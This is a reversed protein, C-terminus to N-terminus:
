EHYDAWAAQVADVLAQPEQQGAIVLQLQSTLVDLLAPASQDPFIMAGNDAAISAYADAIDANVGTFGENATPNLSLNGISQIGPAAEQTYLFNLFAAAANPHETKASVSYAAVSASAVLPAGAESMPLPFFGVDDGLADKFANAQWSGTILYGAGGGAFLAAADVDGTGNATAPYYGKAAWDALLTAAALAGTDDLSAGPQGALWDRLADRDSNANLLAAWNHIGGFDLSGMQLPQAGSSKVAALDDEFEALTTPIGDVGAAQTIAKNYFVGVVPVTLPAALLRGEGMVKGDDSFRTQDLLSKPIVSGWDYAEEYPSLDLILGAAGLDRIPTNYQVIDPPTDGQMVLKITKQYDSAETFQHKVTVQPYKDEFADIIMSMADSNDWDSVVLTVPEDSLETSVPEKPGGSHQASPTLLSCGSLAAVSGLALAALAGRRLNHRM